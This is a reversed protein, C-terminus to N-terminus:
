PKPILTEPKPKPRRNQILAADALRPVRCRPAGYPGYPSILVTKHAHQLGFYASPVAVLTMLGKYAWLFSFVEAFARGIPRWLDVRFGDAQLSSDARCLIRALPCPPLGGPLQGLRKPRRPPRTHKEQTTQRGQVAAETAAGGKEARPERPGPEGDRAGEACLRGKAHVQPPLRGRVSRILRWAGGRPVYPRRDGMHVDFRVVVSSALLVGELPYVAAHYYCGPWGVIGAHEGIM